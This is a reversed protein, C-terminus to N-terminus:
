TNESHKNNNEKETTNQMIKQVELKMDNIYFSLWEIAETPVTDFRNRLSMPLDDLKTNLPTLIMEVVVKADSVTIVESAELQYSIEQRKSAWFEKSIKVRKLPDSVDKLLKRLEDPMDKPMSHNMFDLEEQTLSLEEERRGDHAPNQNDILAKKAEEYYFLKRKRGPKTHYPVVGKKVLQSFYATTIDMVGGQKMKAVVTNGQILEM